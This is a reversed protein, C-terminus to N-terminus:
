KVEDKTQLRTCFKCKKLLKREKIITKKEKKSANKLEMVCERCDPTHVFRIEM